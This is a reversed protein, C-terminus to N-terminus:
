QGLVGEFIIEYGKWNRWEDALTDPNTSAWQHHRMKIYWLYKATLESCVPRNAWAIKALPPFFHMPLRWFPYWQGKHEVILKKIATSKEKRTIPQIEIINKIPRAIIVEKGTYIKFLNSTNITWLSEFTAGDEDIIIGSHSYKSEDDKSWIRQIFNIARGLAMPNRTGFVDGPQLKFLSM